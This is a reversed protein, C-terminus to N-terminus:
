PLSRHREPPVPFASAAFSGPAPIPGFCHGPFHAASFPRRGFDTPIAQSVSELDADLTSFPDQASSNVFVSIALQSPSSTAPIM